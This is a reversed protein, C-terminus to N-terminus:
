IYHCGLVLPVLIAATSRWIYNMQNATQAISDPLSAVSHGSPSLPLPLPGSGNTVPQAPDTVSVAYTDASASKSGYPSGRVGTSAPNTVSSTPIPFLVKVQGSTADLTTVSNDGAQDVQHNFFFIFPADL